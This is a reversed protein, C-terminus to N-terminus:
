DKTKQSTNQLDNNTKKDKKDQDNNQRDKSKRSRIKRNTDELKDSNKSFNTSFYQYEM